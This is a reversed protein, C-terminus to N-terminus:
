KWIYREDYAIGHRDLLAILDEQFTMKKHHEEQGVVYAVVSDKVSRSVTFASYGVQWSFSALDAFTEHVWRSSNAKVARVFDALAVTPPVITAVHLHDATGNVALATGEQNRVIGGVYECVRPLIQTTMFPRRAKTSFVIHYNLSTYSM